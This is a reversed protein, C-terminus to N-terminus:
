TINEVKAHKRVYAKVERIARNSRRSRPEKVWESRLPVVYFKEITKEAM